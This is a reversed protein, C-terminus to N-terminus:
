LTRCTAVQYTQYSKGLRVVRGAPEVLGNKLLRDMARKAHRETLDAWHAVEPLTPPNPLGAVVLFALGQVADRPARVLAEPRRLRAMSELAQRDMLRGAGSPGLGIM